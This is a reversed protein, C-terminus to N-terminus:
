YFSGGELQPQQFNEHTTTSDTEPNTMWLLVCVFVCLPTYTWLEEQQLSPPAANSVRSCGRGRRQKNSSADGLTVSARSAGWPSLPHQKHIHPTHASWVCLHKFGAKARPPEDERSSWACFAMWLDEATGKIGNPSSEPNKRRGGFRRGRRLCCGHSGKM